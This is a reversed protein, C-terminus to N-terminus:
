EIDTQGDQHRDREHITDFRTFMDEFKKERCWTAINRRPGALQPLFRSKRGHRAKPDIAPPTNLTTM